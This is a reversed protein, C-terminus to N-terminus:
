DEPRLSQCIQRLTIKKSPREYAQYRDANSSSDATGNDHTQHHRWINSSCGLRIAKASLDLNLLLFGVIFKSNESLSVTIDSKDDAAM